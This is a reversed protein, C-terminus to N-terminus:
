KRRRLFLGGLGLLAISMPEPILSADDLGMHSGYPYAYGAGGFVAIVGTINIPNGLFDTTPVYLLSYVEQWTGDPNIGYMLNIKDENQGSYAGKGADYTGRNGDGNMDVLGSDDVFEWGLLGASETTSNYYASMKMLQGQTVPILAQGDAVKGQFAVNYGWGWSSWGTVPLDLWNSSGGAGGGGTQLAPAFYAWWGGVAGSGWALWPAETTDSDEFGGNVLMEAQAVGVMALIAFLLILKKM